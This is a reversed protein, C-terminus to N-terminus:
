WVYRLDGVEALLERIVPEAQGCYPCELDGYELLTVESEMPGRVHDREVDVAVALDVITEASGILAQLGMAKPLRAVVAQVVCTVIPAGILTTLVGLKAESLAQGHFTLSAVLLSVTFGIGAISGGGLVSAWGVPLRLPGRRLRTVITAGGFIGIPKGVLYAILFGLTIMSGYSHVLFSGNIAFGANALAFLPVIVYSTFPHFM